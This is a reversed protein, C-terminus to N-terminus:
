LVGSTAAEKKQSFQLNKFGHEKKTAEQSIERLM